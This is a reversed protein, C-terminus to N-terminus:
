KNWFVTKAAFSGIILAGIVGGIIMQLSLQETSMNMLRDMRTSRPGPNWLYGTLGGGAFGIGAGFLVIIIKTIIGANKKKGHDAHFDAWLDNKNEESM